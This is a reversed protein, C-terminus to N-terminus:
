IFVIMKKDHVLPYPLNDLTVLGAVFRQAFLVLSEDGPAVRLGALDEDTERMTKVTGYASYGNKCLCGLSQLTKIRHEPFRIYMLEIPSKDTSFWLRGFTVKFIHEPTVFLLVLSIDATGASGSLIGLKGLQVIGQNVPSLSIPEYFDFKKCSTMMLDATLQGVEATRYLAVKFISSWSGVGVTANGKM